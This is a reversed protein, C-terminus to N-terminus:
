TFVNNWIINQLNLTITSAKTITKETMLNLEPNIDINLLNTAQFWGEWSSPSLKMPGQPVKHKWRGRVPNLCITTKLINWVLPCCTTSIGGSFSIDGSFFLKWTWYRCLTIKLKSFPKLQWFWEKYSEWWGISFIRGSLNGM